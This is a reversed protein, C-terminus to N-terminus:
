FDIVEYSPSPNRHVECKKRFSETHHENQYLYTKPIKLNSYAIAIIIIIICYILLLIINNAKSLV